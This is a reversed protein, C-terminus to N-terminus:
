PGVGIRKSVVLELHFEKSNAKWFEDFAPDVIHTKDRHWLVSTDPIVIHPPVDKKKMRPVHSNREDQM